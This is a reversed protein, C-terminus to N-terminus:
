NGGGTDSALMVAKLAFAGHTVIKEGTSLGTTIVSQGDSAAGIHVERPQFQNPGVPVFVISVGNIETVANEPVIIGTTKEHVPLHTNLFMGPHLSGDPNPVTSIVRVLGTAPDAMDGVSTIKSRLLTTGADSALETTQEGGQVVQTADQPLIDSVIWVSSMDTLRMLETVPSIDDAVGVSVSQIEATTPAIISSTEDLPDTQAKDSETVSNYEEELQHKLTDVDAQRAIVDDKAAQFVALRRKTEGAAVTTGELEHGRRYASSANQCAAQATALAAQARTMELRVLHLSHDQYTLLAEGRRVHQGPVVVVSLVKGSGAPHIRVVHGAEATVTGMADLNKTLTGSKAISIVLAANKQAAEGMVVTPASEAARAPCEAIRFIIAIYFLYKWNKM